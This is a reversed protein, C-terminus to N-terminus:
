SIASPLESRGVPIEHLEHIPLCLYKDDGPPQKYVLTGNSTECHLFAGIWWTVVM